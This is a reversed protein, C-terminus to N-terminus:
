IQIYELRVGELMDNADEEDCRPITLTRSVM